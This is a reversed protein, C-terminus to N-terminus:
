TRREAWARKSAESKRERAVRERERQLHIAAEVAPPLRLTRGGYRALVVLGLGAADYVHPRVEAKMPPITKFCGEIAIRVQADSAGQARCLEARWTRAPIRYLTALQRRAFDVFAGEAKCAEMLHAGTRGKYVEGVIEEVAIPCDLGGAELPLCAARLWAHIEPGDNELHGGFIIHGWGMPSLGIAAVGTRTAGPDLALVRPFLDAPKM